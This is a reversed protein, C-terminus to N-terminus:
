LKRVWLEYQRGDPLVETEGTPGFGMLKLWRTNAPVRPDVHTFVPEDLADLMEECSRTAQLMHRGMASSLFAWAYNKHDGVEAVGACGVPEGDAVLTWSNCQELAALFEDNIFAGFHQQSPQLKLKKLHEASFRAILNM